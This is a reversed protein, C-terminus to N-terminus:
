AISTSFQARNGLSTLADQNALFAIQEMALRDANARDRLSAQMAALLTLLRGLEDRSRVVIRDTLDGAAVREAVEMAAFIPRSMANAFAVALGLGVLGIGVALTTMMRRAAAGQSEAEGRFEYGQAAVTQVLDDLAALADDGQEAVSFPIPVTTVGGAPPSVMELMAASWKRVENEAVRLSAAVQESRARDRVVELDAAIGAVLRRFREVTEPPTIEGIDPRLVSRAENLSSHAARAHNIEMLPGDYLRTILEGSIIVSRVGFLALGCALGIGVSFALILKYRISM